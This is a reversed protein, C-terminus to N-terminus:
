NQEQRLGEKAMQVKKAQIIRWMKQIFEGDERDLKAIKSRLYIVVYCNDAFEVPVAVDSSSANQDRIVIDRKTYAEMIRHMPIESPQNLDLYGQYIPLAYVNVADEGFVLNYCGQIYSTLEYLRERNVQENVILGQFGNIAIEELMSNRMRFLNEIGEITVDVAKQYVAQVAEVKKNVSYHGFPTIIKELTMHPLSFLGLVLGITVQFIILYKLPPMFIFQGLTTFDSVESVKPLQSYIFETVLVLVSCYYLEQTALKIRDFFSSQPVQNPTEKPPEPNIRTKFWAIVKIRELFRYALFLGFISTLEQSHRLFMNLLPMDLGWKLLVHGKYQLPINLSYRPLFEWM